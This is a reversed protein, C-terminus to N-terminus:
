YRGVIFEELLPTAYSTLADYGATTIHSGDPLAYRPHRRGGTESLVSDFRLLPLRERAATEVIWGNLTQVQSNIRDAYSTKGRLTGVLNAVRQLLSGSPPRITVETALVPVIGQARARAVMELYHQRIEASVAELDGDPARFVNNIFGWIIVARPSLAVVDRDFRELMEASTQGGVGRNLLAVDGLRTIAWGQAYSAGLLVIPGNSNASSGSVAAAPMTMAGHEAASAAPPGIWGRSWYYFLAAFERAGARLMDVNDEHGQGIPVSAMRVEFGLHTFVASARRMHLRDTVLLVTRVGWGRLMPALLTGNEWTSTAATEVRAASAPVGLEQAFDAMARGVPCGRRGGGTFAMLPARGDRWLRVGLLVRRLGYHNPTCGDLVGAGLVVIADSSEVTDPLLLPAVIHDAITTDNVVVRLGFLLLIGAVVGFLFSRWRGSAGM